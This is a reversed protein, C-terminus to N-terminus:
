SKLGPHRYATIIDDSLRLSRYPDLLMAPAVVGEGLRLRSVIIRCEDWLDTALLCNLLKAGGEVMVTGIDQDYLRRLVQPLDSYATYPEFHVKQLSAETRRPGLVITKSQGDFLHHDAPIIGHRDLAIRIPNPGYYHRVTLRPNDIVATQTGVLVADAEARWKHVLVDSLFNSIKTQQNVASLYGDASQAWKLVIFPRKNRSSVAFPLLNQAAIEDELGVELELGADKLQSISTGEILPNPDAQAISVRKVGSDLILKSCPPTKGYINCPELSVYLTDDADIEGIQGELCAVEAHPGGFARYFGESKVKGARNVLVAGVQPNTQNYFRGNRALDLCRRIYLSFKNM